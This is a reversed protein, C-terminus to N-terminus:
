RDISLYGIVETETSFGLIDEVMFNMSEWNRLAYSTKKNFMLTFVVSFWWLLYSAKLVYLIEIEVHTYVCVCTM